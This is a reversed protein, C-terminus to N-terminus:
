STPLAVSPAVPAARNASLRSWFTEEIYRHVLIAVVCSPVLSIAVWWALGAWGTVEPRFVMQIVEVTPLHFLFLAYSWSGFRQLAAATRGGGAGSGRSLICAIVLAYMAGLLSEAAPQPGRMRVYLAIPTILLLGLFAIRADLRGRVYLHALTMGMAFEALRGPLYMAYLGQRSIEGIIESSGERGAIFWRFMLTILIASGLFAAPGIKRMVLFLIPFMLYFQVETAMSWLAGNISFIWDGSLIQLFVLHASTVPALSAVQAGTRMAFVAASVLVALAYAPYVRAFRNQFYTRNLPTASTSLPRLSLCFGSLVFFLSVGSAALSLFNPLLFERGGLVIPPLRFKDFGAFFQIHFVYVGLAAIGRLADLSGLRARTNASTTM